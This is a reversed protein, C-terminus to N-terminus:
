PLGQFIRHLTTMAGYKQGGGGGGRAWQFSLIKSENKRKKKGIRRKLKEKQRKESMYKRANDELRMSGAQCFASTPHVQYVFEVNKHCGIWEGIPPEIRGNCVEGYFSDREYARGEVM